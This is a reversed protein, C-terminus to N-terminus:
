FLRRQGPGLPFGKVIHVTRGDRAPYRVEGRPIDALGDLAQDVYPEADSAPAPLREWRGPDALPQEWRVYVREELVNALQTM